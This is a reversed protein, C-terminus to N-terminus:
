FVAKGIATFVIHLISLMGVSLVSLVYGKNRPINYVAALGIGVVIIEWINFLDIKSLAVYIISDIGESAVLVAASLSIVMSGKAVMMPALVLMGLGYIINAYLMVSLVQKFGAKLGMFFNGVLLALAAACLPALLLGLVLAISSSVKMMQKMQETVPQGQLQQEMQPSDLQMQVI